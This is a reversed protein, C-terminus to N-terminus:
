SPRPVELDIRGDLMAVLASTVTLVDMAEARARAYGQIPTLKGLALDNVETALEGVEEVLITLFRDLNTVGEISHAGHKAHAAIRGRVIQGAQRDVSHIIEDPTVSM